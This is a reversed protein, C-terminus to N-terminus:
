ERREANVLYELFFDAVRKQYEATFARDLGTHIGKVSWLEKPEPAKEFLREAHSHPIFDDELSHIILIPAKIRPIDYEPSNRIFDEKLAVRGLMRALVSFLNKLPGMNKYYSTVMEPFNAFASDTVVAKIDMYISAAKIAVAGGMSYGWIGIKCDKLKEEKGIFRVAAEVDLFERLGFRTIRGKSEGHARFDFLILSFEPYLFSVASLIDSKNAPYGHLCIIVGESKEAPIFWGKLSIGDETELIIDRYPLNCDSPLLSVPMRPPMLARWGSLMVLALIIVAGDLIIRLFMKMKRENRSKIFM